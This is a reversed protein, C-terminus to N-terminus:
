DVRSTIRIDGETLEPHHSINYLFCLGETMREEQTTGEKDAAVKLHISEGKEREGRGGGDAEKHQHDTWRIGRKLGRGLERGM